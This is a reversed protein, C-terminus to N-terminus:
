SKASKPKRGRKKPRGLPKVTPGVPMALPSDDFSAVATPPAEIPAEPAAAEAAGAARAAVAELASSRGATVEELSLDGRGPGEDIAVKRATAVSPEVVAKAAERKAQAQRDLALAEGETCVDFVLPSNPRQSVQRAEALKEALAVPVEYWVGPERFRYFRGEFRQTYDQVVFGARPDLPKLRVFRVKDSM